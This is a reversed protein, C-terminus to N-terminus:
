AVMRKLQERLSLNIKPSVDQQEADIMINRLRDAIPQSLRTRALIEAYTGIIIFKQLSPDDPVAGIESLLQRIHAKVQKTNQLLEMSPEPQKSVQGKDRLLMEYARELKTTSPPNPGEGESSWIRSIVVQAEKLLLAVADPCEDRCREYAQFVMARHVLLETAYHVRDFLFPTMIEQKTRILDCLAATAKAVPELAKASAPKIEVGEARPAGPTAQKSSIIIDLPNLATGKLNALKQPKGLIDWKMQLRQAEPGMMQASFAMSLEDDLGDAALAVERIADIIKPPSLNDFSDTFALIAIDGRLYFRTNHLLHWNLELLARMMPVRQTHTLRLLPSEIAMEQTDKNVSLYIAASDQAFAWRPGDPSNTILPKEIDLYFLCQGVLRSVDKQRWALFARELGPYDEPQPGAMISVNPCDEGAVIERSSAGCADCLAGDSPWGCVSCYKRDPM